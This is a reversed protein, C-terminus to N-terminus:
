PQEKTAFAEILREAGRHEVSRAALRNAEAAAADVADGALLRAFMTAGWVDGCGTPDGRRPAPITVERTVIRGGDEDDRAVCTAGRGGRTVVLLRPGAELVARAREEPALVPDLLEFENENMQVHDFCACWRRWAELPRPVRTGDSAIGMFLSHLDAYLPGDFTSRLAEAGELSLENGSIFNVLVADCGDARELLENAAWGSVGGTLREIRDSASHYSLVVRNNPEAVIEVRSADLRPYAGLLALAEEEMDAGIRLLARVTWEPTVAYTAASLAYAIGGWREVAASGSDSPEIRDWVLTGVIGLTSSPAPPAGV